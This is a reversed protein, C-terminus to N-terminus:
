RPVVAVVVETLFLGERAYLASFLYRLWPMGCVTHLRGTWKSTASWFMGGRCKGAPPISCCPEVGYKVVCCLSYNCCEVESLLQKWGLVLLSNGKLRGSGLWSILSSLRIVLSM